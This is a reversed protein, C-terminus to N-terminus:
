DRYPETLNGNTDLIGAQQLLTLANKQEQEALDSTPSSSFHYVQSRVESPQTSAAQNWSFALKNTSLSLLRNKM